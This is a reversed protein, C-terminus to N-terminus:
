LPKLRTKKTATSHSTCHGEYKKGLQKPTACGTGIACRVPM